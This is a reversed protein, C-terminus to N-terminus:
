DQDLESWKAHVLRAVQESKTVLDVPSWNEATATEEMVRSVELFVDLATEITPLVAQADVAEKGKKNLLSAKRLANRLAAEPNNITTNGMKEVQDENEKLLSGLKKLEIKYTDVSVKDGYHRVGISDGLPLTVGNIRYYVSAGMKRDATDSTMYRAYAEISDIQMGKNELIAKLGDVAIEDGIKFDAVYEEYSIYGKKFTVDEWENQIADRFAVFGKAADLPTYGESVAGVIAGDIIFMVANGSTRRACDNLVFEEFSAEPRTTKKGGAIGPCNAGVTRLLGDQATIFTPIVALNGNVDRNLIYRRHDHMYCQRAADKDTVSGSKELRTMYDGVELSGDENPVLETQGKLQKKDVPVVIFKLDSVKTSTWQGLKTTQEMKFEFDDEKLCILQENENNLFKDHAVEYTNVIDERMM